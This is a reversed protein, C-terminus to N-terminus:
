GNCSRESVARAACRLPLLHLVGDEGVTSELTAFQDAVLAAPFSMIWGGMFRAIAASLTKDLFMFRLGAVRTCMRERHCRACRPVTCWWGHADDVLEPLRDPWPESDRDCVAIGRRIRDRSQPPHHDDREIFVGELAVAMERALASKGSGSVGTVVVKHTM